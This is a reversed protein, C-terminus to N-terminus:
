AFFKDAYESPTLQYYKKFSKSFYKPDKFGVKYGIQAISLEGLELLESAKKMRVSIIYENPTMNTWDKMKSFLMTRSLGLETCFYAIDFAANGINEHVIIMAKRLLKDEASEFEINALTTDSSSISKEIQSAIALQNKVMLLFEKIDFPKNIYANAGLELGQYKYTESSRSTLLMFPIHATRDDNKVKACFEFGGMKPMVIDSIILDPFFKLTMKFAARGNESQVVTYFDSLLDFLFGRFEENDDVILIKYKISAANANRPNNTFLMDKSLDIQEQHYSPIEKNVSVNASLESDSLHEKGKRLFVSFITGQNESSKIDIYGQHLKIINQAINLGIGSGNNFQELWEGNSSVEYFRDFIKDLFEKDVGRGNDKIEISVTDKQDHITISIEGGSPTYKFANSVINYFVKELKDADYYIFVEDLETIFTFTYNKLRAYEEFSRYVAAVLSVVNEKEARLQVHGEEFSRFDMLENILKLLQNGNRQIVQLKDYVDKNGKYNKILHQLPALVLTLPTKFDHSVNTFFELKSKNIEQQKLKELRESKLKHVLIIRSRLNVYLLYFSLCLILGYILYAWWTKWPAPKIIIQLSTIQSNKLEGSTADKVQFTYTGSKQLTYNVKPVDSIVWKENLGLLRYAYQNTVSNVYNPTAFKLSFSSETHALTLAEIFAINKRKKIQEGDSKIANDSDIQLDTLMVKFGYRNRKITKPNFFSVGDVGGFYLNNNKGKLSANNNFENGLFGESQDHVITAKTKPNYNVIGLNCSIWLNDEDDMLIDYVSVVNKNILDFDVKIFTDDELEYLGSDKTGVYMKKNSSESISLIKNGYSEKTEFFFQKVAVQDAGLNDESSIRNLGNDAGIWLNKQHDIFLSRIKDNSLTFRRTSERKIQTYKTTNENYIILGKGFTGFILFEDIKKIAYVGVGKLENLFSADLNADIFKESKIDFCRIGTKLTGIWLKQDALLLSKVTSHVLEKQFINTVRTNTKGQKDIVIVQNNQTGIYFTGDLSEQLGNVVGLTSARNQIVKYLTQFNNSFKDWVNVGGYYTGIWMSGNADVYIDKISNKSLSKSNGAQHVIHIIEGNVKKVFLGNYSGIWLNGDKDYRLKRIDNSITVGGKYVDNFKKYTGESKNFVYLGNYRTGILLSTKTDELISQIFFGKPENEFVPYRKFTLDNIDKGVVKNLGSSTGIWIDNSSDKFIVSVTYGSLSSKDSEIRKYNIFSDKKGNYISLGSTTGCWLQGSEFQAIARTTNHAISTIDASVHYYQSFTKTRPDFRNLGKHTGVWIFGDADEKIVSIDNNSISTTDNPDNRYVVIREGDYTNLGDRTGIWMRQFQDQEIAVVASQSLGDSVSIRLFDRFNEKSQSFVFVGVFLLFFLVINKM